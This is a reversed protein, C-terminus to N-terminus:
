RWEDEPIGAGKMIAVLTGIPLPKNGFLPVVAMSGSRPNVWKRHSGKQSKFIFGHKKLIAEVESARFRKTKASM